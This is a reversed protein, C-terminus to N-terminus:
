TKQSYWLEKGWNVVHFPHRPVFISCIQFTPTTLQEGLFTTYSFGSRSLIVSTICTSESSRALKM